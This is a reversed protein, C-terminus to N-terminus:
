LYIHMACFVYSGGNERRVEPQREGPTPLGKILCRKAIHAGTQQRVPSDM